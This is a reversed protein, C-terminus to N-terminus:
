VLYPLTQPNAPAPSQTCAGFNSAFSQSMVEYVVVTSITGRRRRCVEKGKGTETRRVEDEHVTAFCLVDRGCEQIMMSQTAALRDGVLIRARACILNSSLAMSGASCIDHCKRRCCRHFNLLKAGDGKIPM